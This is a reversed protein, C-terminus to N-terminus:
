RPPTVRRKGPPQHIASLSHMARASAELRQWHPICLAPSPSPISGVRCSTGAWGAGDRGAPPLNAGFLQARVINAFAIAPSAPLLQPSLLRGAEVCGRSMQLRCSHRRAFGTRPSPLSCSGVARLSPDTNHKPNHSVGLFPGSHVGWTVATCQCLPTASDRHCTPACALHSRAPTM